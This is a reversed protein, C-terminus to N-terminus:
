ERRGGTGHMISIRARGVSVPILYIFQIDSKWEALNNSSSKLTVSWCPRSTGELCVWATYISMVAEAVYCYEIGNGLRYGLNHHEERDVAVCFLTLVSVVTHATGCGVCDCM